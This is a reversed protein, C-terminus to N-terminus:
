WGSTSRSCRCPASSRTCTPTLHRGGNSAISPNRWTAEHAAIYAKGCERFTMTSASALLAKQRETRRAELPDVGELLQRRCAEAQERAVALRVTHTAGLGM